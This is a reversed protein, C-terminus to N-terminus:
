SLISKKPNDKAYALAKDDIGCGVQVGFITGSRSSYYEVGAKTHYHGQVVSMREQQCRKYADGMSGHTYLVKDIIIEDTFVWGPSGIVKGYDKLWRKSIGSKYARKALRYDHNGMLVTAHPFAKYYPQLSAVAAELEDGPAFMDPDHDHYSIAAFDILDGIFIVRNSKYRKYLDRNFQPSTKRCRTQIILM